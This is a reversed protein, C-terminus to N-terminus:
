SRRSFRTVCEKGMTLYSEYPFRTWTPYPGIPATCIPDTHNEDM